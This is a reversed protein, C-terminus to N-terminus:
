PNNELIIQGDEDVSYTELEKLNSLARPHRLIFGQDYLQKIYSRWHGTLVVARERYEFLAPTSIM